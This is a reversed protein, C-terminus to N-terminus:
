LAILRTISDFRYSGFVGPGGEIGHAAGAVGAGLLFFTFGGQESPDRVFYNYYNSDIAAVMFDYALEGAGPVPCSDVVLADLTWSTDGLVAVSQNAVCYVGETGRDSNFQASVIYLGTSRQWRMPIPDRIALSDPIVTSDLGVLLPVTTVGTVSLGDPTDISLTYTEPFPCM